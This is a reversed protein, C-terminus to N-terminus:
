KISTRTYTCSITIWLSRWFSRQMSSSSRRWFFVDDLVISGTNRKGKIKMSMDVENDFLFEEEKEVEEEKDIGALRKLLKEKEIDGTIKKEESIVFIFGV